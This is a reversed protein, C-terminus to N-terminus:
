SLRELLAAYPPQARGSATDPLGAESVLHVVAPNNEVANFDGLLVVPEDAHKRDRVRQATLRASQERSGQHRHDWHTNFVYFGRQTARDTLRLWTLTRPVGNGWTKSGPQHPTDSLWLTGQDATDAEFRDRRFLIGSYEGGRKGDDRAQGTFEYDPLSAWLDAAQGHRAEQIGIVDPSEERIMRVIGPVRQRWARSGVDEGNEYRV